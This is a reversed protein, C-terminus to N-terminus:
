FVLNNISKIQTLNINAQFEVNKMHHLFKQLEEFEKKKWIGVMKILYNFEKLEPILFAAKDVSENFLSKSIPVPDHYLVKNKILFSTRKQDSNVHEFVSFYVKKENIICSIDTNMRNLEFFPSNNLFYGFQYDKMESQVGIIIFNLDYDIKFKLNHKM